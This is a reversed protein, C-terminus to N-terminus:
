RSFRADVLPNSRSLQIPGSNFSDARIAAGLLGGRRQESSTGHAKAALTEAQGANGSTPMIFEAALEAVIANLLYPEWVDPAARLRAMAWLPSYDAYVRGAEIAYNQLPRDQYRPNQLFRQPVTLREAPLAFAYLWGNALRGDDELPEDVRQLSVTRKTCTWPYESLVGDVVRRYILGVSEGNRTAQDFTQVPKAGFANFAMNAVTLDDM